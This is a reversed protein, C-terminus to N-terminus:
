RGVVKILAALCRALKKTVIREQSYRAAMEDLADKATAVNTVLANKAQIAAVRPDYFADVDQNINSLANTCVGSQALEDRFPQLALGPAAMAADVADKEGQTMEVLLGGVVKLHKQPPTAAPLGANRWIAWQAATVPAPLTTCTEGPRPVLKSTSLSRVYRVEPIRGVLACLHDAAWGPVALGLLIGCSLWWRM